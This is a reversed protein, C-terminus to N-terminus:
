PLPLDRREIPAPCLNTSLPLYLPTVRESEDGEKVTYSRFRQSGATVIVSCYKLSIVEIICLELAHLLGAADSPRPRPDLYAACSRPDVPRSRLKSSIGLVRPGCPLRRQIVAGRVPLSARFFFFFSFAIIKFPFLPFAARPNIM